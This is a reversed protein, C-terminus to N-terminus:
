LLFPQSKLFLGILKTVEAEVGGEPCSAGVDAAAHANHIHEGNKVVLVHLDVNCVGVPLVSVTKDETLTVRANSVCANEALEAEIVFLLELGEVQGVGLHTDM